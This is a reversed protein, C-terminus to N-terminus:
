GFSKSPVFLGRKSLEAIDYSPQSHKFVFQRQCLKGFSLQCQQLYHILSTKAYATLNRIKKLDIRAFFSMLFDLLSSSDLTKLISQIEDATYFVDGIKTKEATVMESIALVLADVVEIDIGLKDANEEFYTYEIQKKVKDITAPAITYQKQSKTTEISSNLKALTEKKIKITTNLKKLTQQKKQLMTKRQSKKKKTASSDKKATEPHKVYIKNAKKNGQTKEEILDLTVLEKFASYATRMSVGLLEAAEARTFFVYVRNQHSDMFHNEKSLMARNLLLSYLVRTTNSMNKYKGEFLAKPMTYFAQGTFVDDRTIYSNNM